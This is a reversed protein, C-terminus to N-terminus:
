DLNAQASELFTEPIADSVPPPCFAELPSEAELSALVSAEMRLLLDMLSHLLSSPALPSLVATKAPPSLSEAKASLLVM